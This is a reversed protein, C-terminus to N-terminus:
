IHILSLNIGQLSKIESVNNKIGKFIFESGNAAKISNETKKFFAQVGILEIADCLTKYVSDAISAQIQRSCLIRVKKQLSLFILSLAISFTKASGRGGYLIKYRSKTTLLFMAKPPLMIEKM